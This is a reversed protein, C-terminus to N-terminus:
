CYMYVAETSSRVVHSFDNMFVNVSGKGYIRAYTHVTHALGSERSEGCSSPVLLSYSCAPMDIYSRDYHAIPKM